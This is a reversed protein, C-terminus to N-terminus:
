EKGGNRVIYLAIDQRIAFECDRESLSYVTSAKELNEVVKEVDYATPLESVEDLLGYADILTTDATGLCGDTCKSEILEQVSKRSILDGQPQKKLEALEANLRNVEQCKELYISSFEKIQEPTVELDEYAALREMACYGEECNAYHLIPETGFCEYLTSLVNKGYDEKVLIGKDTRRTLREM